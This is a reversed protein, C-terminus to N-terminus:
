SCPRAARERLSTLYENSFRQWFSNLLRNVYAVRKTPSVTENIETESNVMTNKLRRGYMLHSPTIPELLEDDHVYSLPRSNMVAEIEIIVTELEEYRLHANKLTKRLARKITSNMREYFGGWNPALDLIHRWKIGNKKAFNQTKEARCTKHNDSIALAPTGVRAFTRKMSRVTSTAELNPQLQLHVMRTVCCSFLSIYCKHMDKSSSYIDRVFLPGVHDTGINHFPPVVEVRFKPLEPEPSANYPSAEYLNCLNCKLLVKRVFEVM